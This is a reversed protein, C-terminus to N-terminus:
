DIRAQFSLLLLGRQTTIQLSHLYRAYQRVGPVAALDVILHRGQLSLGHPLREKFLDAFRLLGAYQPSVVSVVVRNGQVSPAVVLEPRFWRSFPGVRVNLGARLYNDGGIEIEIQQIRGGAQVISANALENLVRETIPITGSASAGEFQEPGIAILM